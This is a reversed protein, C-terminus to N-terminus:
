TLCKKKAAEGKRERRGEGREMGKWVASCFVRSCRLLLLLFFHSLPLHPRRGEGGGGREREGTYASPLVPGYFQSTPTLTHSLSLPPPLLPPPARQWYNVFDIVLAKIQSALSFPSFPSSPRAFGFNARYKTCARNRNKKENRKM